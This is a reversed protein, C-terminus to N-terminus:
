STLKTGELIINKIEKFNNQPIKYNPYSSGIKDIKELFVDSSSVVFKKDEEMIETSKQFNTGFFTPVQFVKAELISHIGKQEFGGGIYALDSVSLIQQLLGVRDVLISNQPLLKLKSYIQSDTFGLDSILEKLFDSDNPEHPVLILYFKEKLEWIANKLIQWDSKYLSGFVFIRKKSKIEQWIMPIPSKKLRLLKEIKLDGFTSIKSKDIGLKEFNDASNKDLTSITEVQNYIKQFFPKILPNLKSSKSRLKGSLVVQRIKRKKLELSYNLWIESETWVFLMPEIKSILNRSNSKTDPPLLLFNIKQLNSIEQKFGLINEPKIKLIDKLSLIGSPSFFTVFIEFDSTLEEALLQIKAFEGWSSCHFWIRPQTIKQSIKSFDFSKQFDQWIKIKFNRSPIKLILISFVKVFFSYFKILFIM